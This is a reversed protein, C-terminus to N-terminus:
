QSVTLEKPSAKWRRAQPWEEMREGCTGAMDQCTAMCVSGPHGCRREVAACGCDSVPGCCWAHRSRWHM